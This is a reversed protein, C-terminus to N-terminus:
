FCKKRSVEDVENKKLHNKLADHVSRPNDRAKHLLTPLNDIAASGLTSILSSDFHPLQLLPSDDAWQGQIVMKILTQAQLCCALWGQEGAVDVIAQFHCM